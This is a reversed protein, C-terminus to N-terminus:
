RDRNKNIARAEKKLKEVLRKVLENSLETIAEFVPIVFFLIGRVADATSIGFKISINELEERLDAGIRLQLHRRDNKM